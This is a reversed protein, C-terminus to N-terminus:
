VGVKAKEDKSWGELLQDRIGRWNMGAAKMVCAKQFARTSIVRRLQAERSRDRIEWIGAMEATTLGGAAGISEELTKDYDVTITIFRDLTAGDLQNRGAYIPNAGTGYTNATAVFFVNEGRKVEPNDRKIPVFWNQGALPANAVMFMNPDFGDIEDWCILGRGKEYLQICKSPVYDFKGNDGPLLRGVIDGESAGATGGVITFDVDLAKALQSALYTKGCGAPGVLLINARYNHPGPKSLLGLCKEFEPHVIGDVRVIKQADHQIDIIRPAVGKLVEEAIQRVRSEDLGPKYGGLLIQRLLDMPDANPAMAPQAPSGVAPQANQVAPKPADAGFGAGIAEVVDNEVDQPDLEDFKKRIASLGSGDLSNYALGLERMSLGAVFMAPFGNAVVWKRVLARNATSVNVGGRAGILAEAEATTMSPTRAM